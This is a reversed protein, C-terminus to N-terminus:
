GIEAPRVIPAPHCLNDRERAARGCKTCYFAAGKVLKRIQEFDDRKVLKCLHQDRCREADKCDSM